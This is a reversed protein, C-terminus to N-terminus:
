KPGGSLNNNITTKLRLWKLGMKEVFTQGLKSWVMAFSLPAPLM